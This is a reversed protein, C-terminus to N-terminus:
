RDEEQTPFPELLGPTNLSASLVDDVWKLSSYNPDYMGGRPGNVIPPLQKRAVAQFVRIKKPDLTALIEWEKCDSRHVPHFSAHEHYIEYPNLLGDIFLYLGSAHPLQTEGTYVFLKWFWGDVGDFRRCQVKMVPLREETDGMKISFGRMCNFCPGTCPLMFPMDMWAQTDKSTYRTSEIVEDYNDMPVGNADRLHIAGTSEPLPEGSSAGARSAAPLKALEQAMKKRTRERLLQCTPAHGGTGDLRKDSGPSPTLLITGLAPSLPSRV